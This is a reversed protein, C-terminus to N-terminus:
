TVPSRPRAGAWRPLPRRARAPRSSALEEYVALHLRAAREWSFATSRIRGEAALRRSLEERLLVAALAEALSDPDPEVLLAADACVEPLAGRRAAVVPTGCAMAELAPLGFGEYLSPVVVVSASTVLGVLADDPQRGALVTGPLDGFLQTRRAAESGTLVLQAGTTRHVHPWAAALAALNKRDSAGAAHLVFPGKIGLEGLLLPTMPEPTLWQSDLGHPITWVREVGLVERVERATFESPTIAGFSRQAAAELWAPREGEDPFRWPELGHITTVERRGAPPLRLDLRHVWGTPYALAALSAATTASPGGLLKTPLRTVGRLPSRLGTFRRETFQWGAAELDRMAHMLQTEYRQQGMPNSSAWYAWTLHTVTAAGGTPRGCWRRCVM